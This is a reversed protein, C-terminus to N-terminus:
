KVFVIKSDITIRLHEYKVSSKFLKLTKNLHKETCNTWVHHFPYIVLEYNKNIIDVDNNNKCVDILTKYGRTNYCGKIELNYVKKPKAKRAM